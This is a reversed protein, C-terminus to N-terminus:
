SRPLFAFNKLLQLGYRHSKEPHFQVGHLNGVSFASVFGYGYTTRGLWQATEDALVVHYSHVFYFRPVTPLNEVLRAGPRFTVENWGMHPIRPGTNGEFAFRRTHADIWGLGPAKGEESSRTMLQMGLCIGLVPVREELARRTLLPVLGSASLRRSGETFSGVGPLILHTATEITLPDATRVAEVGLFRLMNAISAANSLGVDIIAILTKLENSVTMAM